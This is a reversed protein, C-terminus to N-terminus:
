PALRKKGERELWIQWLTKWTSWRHRGAVNIVSAQPLRTALLQNAEAFYDETGFLLFLPLQPDPMTSPVATRALLMPWIYTDDNPTPPYQALWAAIGQQRMATITKPSGLYPAIAVVGVLLARQADPLAALAMLAGFGGLSTGVLWIRAYGAQAAEQLIRQMQLPFSRSEYYGM